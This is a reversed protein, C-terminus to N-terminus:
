GQGMFRLTRYKKSYLKEVETRFEDLIEKIKM